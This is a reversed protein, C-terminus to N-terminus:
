KDELRKESSIMVNDFLIRDIARLLQFIANAIGNQNLISYTKRHGQM